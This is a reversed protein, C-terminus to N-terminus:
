SSTELRLLRKLTGAIPGRNPAGLSGRVVGDLASDDHALNAAAPDAKGHLEM